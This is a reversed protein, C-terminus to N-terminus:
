TTESGPSTGSISLRYITPATCQVMHWTGHVTTGQILFVPKWFANESIFDTDYILTLVIIESM